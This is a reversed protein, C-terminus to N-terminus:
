KTKKRGLMNNLLAVAGFSIVFAITFLVIFGVVALPAAECRDQFISCQIYDITFVILTSGVASSFVLWKTNLKSLFFHNFAILPLLLLILQLLVNEM